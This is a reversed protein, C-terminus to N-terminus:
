GIVINVLKGKVPIVKKVQKGELLAKVGADALVKEKLANDDLGVPLTM